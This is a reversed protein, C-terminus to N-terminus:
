LAKVKAQIHLVDSEAKTMQQRETRHVCEESGKTLEFNNKNSCLDSYILVLGLLGMLSLLKRFLRIELYM